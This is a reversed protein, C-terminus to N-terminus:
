EEGGMDADMDMEPEDGMDMEEGGEADGGLADVLGQLSALAEAADDVMDQSIEKTDEDGGMEPDAEMEAPPEEEGGMDMEAEEEEGGMDLEEEEEEYMGQNERLAGLGALGMFRRVQSENLLTSKKKRVTRRQKSYRKKAM